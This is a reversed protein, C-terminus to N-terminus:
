LKVTSKVMKSNFDIIHFPLILLLVTFDVFTRDLIFKHVFDNIIRFLFASRLAPNAEPCLPCFIFYPGGFTCV